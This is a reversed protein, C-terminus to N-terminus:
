GQAVMPRGYSGELQASPVDIVEGGSLKFIAVAEALQQSQEQLAAAAAAAQEVLAANQQTVEDMQSVARNVQEIGSSQEQSAASIEGMIDTVRKVSVVIEQMTAGARGVQQSGAAVKGVSDEILGKIEKAAQASRQALSRVEGAVVAFGKGQEGARAAEVAANLALINTQFAIGDIVSVIESIKRSSASIDEMTNVVESVAVGGREAVDSASAALQNAQRANDANQKVTSALEEMSAATEELSAAQEETRSSLDTNGAAIERAGVNIEDVGRRVSSVTRTLSEQMRKIAAFLQGVENGSRVDVRSSLDGAAIRDFHAGAELLPRVVLRGFVLRSVVMLLLALVVAAGVAMLARDFSQGAYDITEQQRQDIYRSFDGIAAIFAASRPVGYETNVMYFTSYDESKLAEVMTDVGDDIYSRYRRVLNMSLQRGTSDELMNKQFDSFRDRVGGLLDTAQKIVQTAEQGANQGNGWGSEQLHRAAVMLDVRARLMDSNIIEVQKARSTLDNLEQVARYNQQLFYASLAGVAAILIAFFGLLCLLLSGVRANRLSWSRSRKQKPSRTRKKSKPARAQHEYSSEM